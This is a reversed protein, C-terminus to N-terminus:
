DLYFGKSKSSYNSTTPTRHQPTFPPLHTASCCSTTRERYMPAGNPTNLTCVPHYSSLQQTLSVASCYLHFLTTHRVCLLSLAALSIPYFYLYLHYVNLLRDPRGTVYCLVLTYLELPHFTYLLFFDPLYIGSVGRGKRKELSM